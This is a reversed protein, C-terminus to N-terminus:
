KGGVLAGIAAVLDPAYVIASAEGITVKVMQKGQMNDLQLGGLGHVAGERDYTSIVISKVAM